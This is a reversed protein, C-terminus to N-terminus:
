NKMVESYSPPQDSLSNNFDWPMPPASPVQLNSFDESADPITKVFFWSHVDLPFDPGNDRHIFKASM